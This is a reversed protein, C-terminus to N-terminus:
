WLRIRGHSSAHNFLYCCSNRSCLRQSRRSVCTLVVVYALGGRLHGVLADMFHLLRPALGGRNMVNAAFIFFPVALLSLKNIGSFMRQLVISINLDTFAGIVIASSTTLALFVPLNAFLLLFFLAFLVATM